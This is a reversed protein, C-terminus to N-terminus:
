RPWCRPPRPGPIGSRGASQMIMPQARRVARDAPRGARSGGQGEPTRLLAPARSTAARHAARQRQGPEDPRDRYPRVRGHGGRPLQSGAAGNGLRVDSHGVDRDGQRAV